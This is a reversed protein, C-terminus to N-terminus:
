RDAILRISELPEPSNLPVEIVRFGSDFLVEAVPLADSPELERL